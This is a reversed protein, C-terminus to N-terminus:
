NQLHVLKAPTDVHQTPPGDGEGESGYWTALTICFNHRLTARVMQFPELLLPSLWKCLMNLCRGFYLLVRRQHHQHWQINHSLLNWSKWVLTVAPNIQQEWRQGAVGNAYSVFAVHPVWYTVRVPLYPTVVHVWLSHGHTGEVWVLPRIRNKM